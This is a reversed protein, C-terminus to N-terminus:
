AGPEEDSPVAVIHVADQQVGHSARHPERDPAPPLSSEGVAQALKAATDADALGRARLEGLIDTMSVDVNLNHFEKPILPEAVQKLTRLYELPKKQAAKALAQADPRAQMMEALVDVLPGRPSSEIQARLTDIGPRESGRPLRRGM